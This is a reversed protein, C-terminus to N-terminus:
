RSIRARRTKLVEKVCHAAMKNCATYFSELNQPEPYFGANQGFRFMRVISEYYPVITKYYFQMMVNCTCRVIAVLFPM